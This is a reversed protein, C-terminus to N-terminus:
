TYKRTEKERQREIHEAAYRKIAALVYEIGRLFRDEIQEPTEKKADMEDVKHMYATDRALAKAKAIQENM